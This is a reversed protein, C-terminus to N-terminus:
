ATAFLDVGSHRILTLIYETGQRLQWFLFLNYGTVRANSQQSLAEWLNRQAPSQARWLYGILRFRNRQHIQRRTPPILPPSKLFFVPRKRCYTYMTYKGLDGSLRFGLYTFLRTSGIM